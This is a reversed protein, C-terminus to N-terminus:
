GLPFPSCSILLLGIECRILQPRRNSLQFICHRLFGGCTFLIFPLCLASSFLELSFKLSHLVPIKQLLQGEWSFRSVGLIEKAFNSTAFVGSRPYFRLPWAEFRQSGSIKM